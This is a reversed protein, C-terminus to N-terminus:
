RQAEELCPPCVEVGHPLPEGCGPCVHTDLDCLPNLPNRLWTGEQVQKCLEATHVRTVDGTTKRKTVDYFRFREYHILEGDLQVHRLPTGCAPCSSRDAM